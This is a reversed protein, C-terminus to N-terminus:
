RVLLEGLQRVDVLAEAHRTRVRTEGAVAEFYFVEAPEVPARQGDAFHLLIRDLSTM